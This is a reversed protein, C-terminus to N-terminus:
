GVAAASHKWRCNCVPAGEALTGDRTIGLSLINSMAHDLKCLYPLYEEDVGHVRYLKLIACETIDVGFDYAHGNGGVYSFVWDGPYHRKQSQEAAQSLRKKHLKSFYYWRYASRVPRSLSLLYADFIDHQIQAAEMLEFRRKKLTRYLALNMVCTDLNIQWINKEGIYPIKPALAALEWRTNAFISWILKAPYKDLLRMRVAQGIRNYTSILKQTRVSDIMKAEGVYAKM